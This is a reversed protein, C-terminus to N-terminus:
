TSCSKRPILENSKKTLEAQEKLSSDYPLDNLFKLPISNATQTTLELAQLM